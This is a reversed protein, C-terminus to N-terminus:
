ETIEAFGKKFLFELSEKKNLKNREIYEVLEEKLKDNNRYSDTSLWVLEENNFYLYVTLYDKKLTMKEGLYYGYDNLLSITEDKSLDKEFLNKEKISSIWVLDGSYFSAEVVGEPGIFNLTEDALIYGQKKIYDIIEQKSKEIEIFQRNIKLCEENDKSIDLDYSFFGAFVDRFFVMYYNNGGQDYFNIEEIFDDYNDDMMYPISFVHNWGRKLAYIDSINYNKFRRTFPNYFLNVTDTRKYDNKEKFKADDLYINQALKSLMLKYHKEYDGSNTSITRLREVFSEHYENEFFLKVNEGSSFLTESPIYTMDIEYLFGYWYPKVSKISFSVSELGKECLYASNSEDNLYDYISYYYTNREGDKTFDINTKSYFQKGTLEYIRGVDDENIAEIVNILWNESYFFSILVYVIFLIVVVLLFKLINKLIGKVNKM